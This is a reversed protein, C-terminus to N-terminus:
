FVFSGALPITRAWSPFGVTRRYCCAGSLVQVEVGKRACTRLRGRIGIGGRPSAMIIGLNAPKDIRRIIPIVRRTHKLKGIFYKYSM